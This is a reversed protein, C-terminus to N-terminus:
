LVMGARSVKSTIITNSSCEVDLRSIRRGCAELFDIFGTLSERDQPYVLTIQELIHGLDQLTTGLSALSETVFLKFTRLKPCIQLVEAM